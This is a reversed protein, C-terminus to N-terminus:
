HNIGFLGDMFGFFSKNDIINQDIFYDVKMFTRFKSNINETYSIEKCLIGKVDIESKQLYKSNEFFKFKIFNQNEIRL